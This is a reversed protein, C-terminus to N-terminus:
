IDDPSALRGLEDLRSYIDAVKRKRLARIQNDRIRLELVQDALIVTDRWVEVARLLNRHYSTLEGRGYSTLLESRLNEPLVMWHPWCRLKRVKEVATDAYM